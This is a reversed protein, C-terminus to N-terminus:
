SPERPRDLARVLYDYAARLNAPTGHRARKTLAEEDDSWTHVGGGAAALVQTACARDLLISHMVAHPVDPGVAVVGHHVLLVVTSDGLCAAVRAGLESSVILDGTETFRPVDPPVFLCADHSMPRLPQNTAAFAVANTAHTHVVAGVDPRAAMIETHIPYEIHRRGRGDLMEGARDVLHVRSPDIEDLGYGAGKIWAGRGDPDRASVHGWILDGQGLAALVRCAIAVEARAQQAADTM